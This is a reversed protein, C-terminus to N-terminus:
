GGTTEGLFHSLVMALLLAIVLASPVAELELGRLRNRGLCAPAFLPLKRLM